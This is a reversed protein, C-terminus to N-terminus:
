SSGMPRTAPLEEGQLELENHLAALAKHLSGPVAIGMAQLEKIALSILEYVERLLADDRM